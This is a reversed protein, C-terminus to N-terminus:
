YRFVIGCMQEMECRSLIFCHCHYAVQSNEKAKKASTFIITAQMVKTAVPLSFYHNNSKNNSIFRPYSLLDTLQIVKEIYLPLLITKMSLIDTCNCNENKSKICSFNQSVGSVYYYEVLYIEYRIKKNKIIYFLLAQHQHDYYGQEYKWLTSAGVM